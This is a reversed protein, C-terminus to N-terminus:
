SVGLGPGQSCQWELMLFDGGKDRIDHFRMTRKKPRYRLDATGFGRQKKLFPYHGLFM